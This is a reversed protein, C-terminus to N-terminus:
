KPPFRSFIGSRLRLVRVPRPATPLVMSKGLEEDTM